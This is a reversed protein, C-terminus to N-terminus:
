TKFTWTLALAVCVSCLLVLLTYIWTQARRMTLREIHHQVVEMAGHGVYMFAFLVFLTATAIVLLISLETLTNHFWGLVFGASTSMMGACIWKWHKM